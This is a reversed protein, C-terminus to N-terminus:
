KPKAERGTKRDQVEDITKCKHCLGLLTLCDDCRYLHEFDEHSLSGLHKRFEWLTQLTIHGMQTTESM